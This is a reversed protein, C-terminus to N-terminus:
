FERWLKYLEGFKRVATKMINVSMFIKLFARWKLSFIEGSFFFELIIEV